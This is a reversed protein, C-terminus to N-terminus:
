SPPPTPLPPVAQVPYKDFIRDATAIEWGRVLATSILLRDFPDRHHGPLKGLMYIAENFLPHFVFGARQVIQPFWESPAAPLTIKGLDHKIQVELMSVQSIHWRVEKSNLLDKLRPSLHTTDFQTWLLVHTDLLIDRM